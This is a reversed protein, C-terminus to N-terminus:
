CAMRASSMASVGEQITRRAANGEEIFKGLGSGIRWLAKGVEFAKFAKFAKFAV